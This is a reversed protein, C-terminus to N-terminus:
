RTGKRTPPAAAEPVAGKWHLRTIAFAALEAVKAPTLNPITILLGLVTEACQVYDYRHQPDNELDRITQAFTHMLLHEARPATRRMPTDRELAM